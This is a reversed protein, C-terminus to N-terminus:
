KIVQFDHADALHWTKSTPVIIGSVKVTYWRLHAEHAAVYDEANLRVILQRNRGPHGPRDRWEIIVAREADSVRLPDDKSSLAKVIGTITQPLPELKRLRQSAEELFAYNKAGTRIPGINRIDDSAPLKPSWIVDYELPMTGDNSMGVIADCMKSNFGTTYEDVLVSVNDDSTARETLILGRVIREMVRRELPLESIKEDEGFEESLRHHTVSTYVLPSGTVPSEISFGFSGAFTHGFRYHAVMHTGIALTKDFHPKPNYESSAAFSVLQKLQLVQDAALQLTISASNDVELNRVNLVDRDYYKIRKILTTTSERSVASLTGIASTLYVNIDSSDFNRPLVIEIPHKNIDSQGTFILWRRNTKESRTWGILGLYSILNRPLVEQILVQDTINDM